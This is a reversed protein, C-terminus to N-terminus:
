VLYLLPFLYIWILDVLHWYLGGLEVPTYYDKYFKGKMAGLLVWLLVSMGIVVHIGHLGTILFYIGFFLHGDGVNALEPYKHVLEQHHTWEHMAADMAAYADTGQAATIATKMAAAIDPVQFIGAGFAKSVAGNIQAVHEPHNFFSTGWLLGDHIKHSYEVYKIGLFGFACVITFVLLGVIQKNKEGKQNTQAARVALAVTWSSTILVLTNVSGLVWNLQESAVKWMEPNLTKIVTYAVFLGSFLLVETVLFLWMGLKASSAQQEADYFHHAHKHIIINSM